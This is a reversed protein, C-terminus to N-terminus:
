SETEDTEKLNQITEELTESATKYRNIATKLPELSIKHLNLNVLFQKEAENYYNELLEVYDRAGLPLIISDSLRLLVNGATRAVTQHSTFGPDIYKSAYDFTDFATHYAPYIRASTKKTDYTYALDM